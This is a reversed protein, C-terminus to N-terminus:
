QVLVWMSCMLVAIPPVIPLFSFFMKDMGTHVALGRRVVMIITVKIDRYGPARRRTVPEKKAFATYLTTQGKKLGLINEGPSRTHYWEPVNPACTNAM